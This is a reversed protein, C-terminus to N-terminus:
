PLEFGRDLLAGVIMNVSQEELTTGLGDSPVHWLVVHLLEHVITWEIDEGKRAIWIFALRKDTNNRDCGNEFGPLEDVIHLDIRWDRLSLREQWHAVMGRIEKDTYKAGVM